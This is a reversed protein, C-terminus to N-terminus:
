NQVLPPRHMLAMKAQTLQLLQKNNKMTIQILSKRDKRKEMLVKATAKATMAVKVKMTTMTVLNLKTMAKKKNVEMEVPMKVAKPMRAMKNSVTKHRKHNAVTKLMKNAAMKVMKNHEMKNHVMKNHEMRAKHIKAMQSQPQSPNPNKLMNKKMLVMTLM